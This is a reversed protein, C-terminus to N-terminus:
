VADPVVVHGGYTRALEGVVTLADADRIDVPVPPLFDDWVALMTGRLQLMGYPRALFFVHAHAGGDGWKLVHVRAVQPLAEIAAGLKVMIRGLEAARDDPLDTFDYHDRPCLMLALPAGSPELAFVRWHDDLWLGDDRHECGGCPEDGEGARPPETEVPPELPKLKLGDLEFPFIEWYPIQGFQLRGDADAAAMARAYFEQPTEPM